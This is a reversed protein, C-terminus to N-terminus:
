YIQFITEVNLKSAKGPNTKIVTQMKIHASLSANLLM